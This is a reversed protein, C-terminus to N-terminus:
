AGTPAAAYYITGSCREVIRRALDGKEICDGYSIGRDSLLTRLDKVSRVMLEDYSETIPPLARQTQRDTARAAASSLAREFSPDM